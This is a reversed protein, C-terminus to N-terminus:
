FFWRPRPPPAGGEIYEAFKYLLAEHPASFHAMERLRFYAVCEASLCAKSMQYREDLIGWRIRLLADWYLPLPLLCIGNAFANLHTKAPALLGELSQLLRLTLCTKETKM